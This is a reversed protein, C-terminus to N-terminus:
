GQSRQPTGAVWVHLSPRKNPYAWYLVALVALEVVSLTWKSASLAASVLAATTEGETTALALALTWKSIPFSGRVAMHETVWAVVRACAKSVSALAAVQALASAVVMVCATSVLVFVAVPALASAVVTVCATSVLVSVAAPALVSAVVM